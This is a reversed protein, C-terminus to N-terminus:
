LTLSMELDFCPLCSLPRRNSWVHKCKWAKKWSITRKFTFRCRRGAGAWEQTETVCTFILGSPDFVLVKYVKNIIINEDKFCNKLELNYSTAQFHACFENWLLCDSTSSNQSKQNEVLTWNSPKEVGLLHLNLIKRYGISPCNIQRECM